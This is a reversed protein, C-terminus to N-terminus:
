HLKYPTADAQMVINLYGNADRCWYVDHDLRIVRYVEGIHQSYWYHPDTSKTIIIQM